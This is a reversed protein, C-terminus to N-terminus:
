NRIDVTHSFNSSFAICNPRIILEVNNEKNMFHTTFGVATIGSSNTKDTEYLM